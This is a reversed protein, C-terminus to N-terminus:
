KNVMMRKYISEIIDLDGPYTVKYLNTETEIFHARIGHFEYMVRTEDTMDNFKGSRYASLLLKYDFAQPTLLEYLSDRNIYTGNRFIVTNVLPRVFSCSPHSDELLQRIQKETVMPRAAELIVVRDTDSPISELGKLVSETRTVGGHIDKGVVIINQKGVIKKACEYAYRWLPKNHFIVDQKKEKYRTGKGAALLIASYKM